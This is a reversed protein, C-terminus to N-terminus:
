IRRLLVERGPLDGAPAELVLPRVREPVLGYPLLCGDIARRDVAFLGEEEREVRSGRLFLRGGPRLLRAVTEGYRRRAAGELTHFCGRDVVLSASGTALPAREARALCWGVRVGARRARRRALALAAPSVDVGLVRFGREALHIADRGGGCGLDVAVGHCTVEDSRLLRVLEPAPGPLEWHELHDSSRYADDWFRRLFSM